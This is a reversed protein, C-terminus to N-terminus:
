LEGHKLYYDEEKKFGFSRVGKDKLQKRLKVAYQKDIEGRKEMFAIIEKAQELTDCRRIFDIVDPTYHLFKASAANEGTHVNGRVSNVSVKNENSEMEKALNPFIKKFTKEEYEVM